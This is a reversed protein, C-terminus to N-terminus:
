INNTFMHETKVRHYHGKGCSTSFDSSKPLNANDCWEVKVEMEAKMMYTNGPDRFFKIELTGKVSRFSEYEESFLRHWHRSIEQLIYGDDGVPASDGPTVVYTVTTLGETIYINNIRTFTSGKFAEIPYQALETAISLRRAFSSANIARIQMAFLALAGFAFIALSVMVEVLTFGRRNKIERRM